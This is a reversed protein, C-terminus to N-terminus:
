TGFPGTDALAQAHSKELLKSDSPKWATSRSLYAFMEVADVSVRRDRRVANM